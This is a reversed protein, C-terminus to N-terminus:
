GKTEKFDKDEPLASQPIENCQGEEMDMLQFCIIAELGYNGVSRSQTLGGGEISLSCRVKNQRLWLSGFLSDQFVFAKASLFPFPADM